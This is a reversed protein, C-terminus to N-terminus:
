KIGIGKLKKIIEKLKKVFFDIEKETNYKSLSIRISSEIEKKSLGIAKLVHSKENANSM